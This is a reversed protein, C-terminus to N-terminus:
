IITYLVIFDHMHAQLDKRRDNNPKRNGGDEVFSCPTANWIVDTKINVIMTFCDRYLVIISRITNLSTSDGLNRSLRSIFSTYNDARRV